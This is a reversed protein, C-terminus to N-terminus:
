SLIVVFREAKMRILIASLSPPAKEICERDNWPFLCIAITTVDVSCSLFRSM